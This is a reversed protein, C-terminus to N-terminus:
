RLAPPLEKDASKIVNSQHGRQRKMDEVMQEADNGDGVVTRERVLPADDVSRDDVSPDNATAAPDVKKPKFAEKIRALNLGEDEDKEGDRIRMLQPKITHIALDVSAGVGGVALLMAAIALAMADRLSRMGHVLGALAGSLFLLTTGYPLTTRATAAFMRWVGGGGGGGARALGRGALDAADLEGWMMWGGVLVVVCLAVLQLSYLMPRLLLAKARAVMVWTSVMAAVTTAAFVVGVLQLRPGFVRRAAALDPETLLPVARYLLLLLLLLLLMRLWPWVAHEPKENLTLLTRMQENTLSGPTRSRPPAIPASVPPREPPPAELTLPAAPPVFRDAELPEFAQAVAVKPAPKAAVPEAAPLKAVAPKAAAPKAPISARVSLASEVRMWFVAADPLRETPDSCLAESLASVLSAPLDPLAQQLQEKTPDTPPRRGCLVHHTLMGLAWVDMSPDLTPQESESMRQEPAEYNAYARENEIAANFHAIRPAHTGAHPVLVIRRPNLRGHTVGAMHLRAIAEFVPAIIRTAEAFPLGDPHVALLEALSQGSPAEEVVFPIGTDDTTVDLVRAVHPPSLKVLAKPLAVFSEIVRARLAHEPRLMRVLVASGGHTDTAAYAEAAGEDGLHRDLRYRGDALTEGTRTATAQGDM